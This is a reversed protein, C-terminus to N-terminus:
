CVVLLGQHDGDVSAGSLGSDGSTVSSLVIDLELEFGVVEFGHHDGVVSSVSVTSACGDVVSLEPSDSFGGVVLMSESVSESEHM